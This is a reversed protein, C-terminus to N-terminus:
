GRKLSAAVFRDFCERVRCKHEKLKKGVGEGVELGLLEFTKDLYRSTVEAKAGSKPLPIAQLELVFDVRQFYDLAESMASSEESSIVGASAISAIRDTTSANLPFAAAIDALGIATLYEIDYRGGASRKTEFIEGGHPVLNELQQRTGLLSKLINKPVPDTIRDLIMKFFTDALSQEGGWCDCKAFAVREWPSLRDAFYRTYNSLDQVLPANAGEGRLRFDIKLLNSESFFQNIKQVRRTLPDLDRGDSVVLVDVDSNLRPEGVGFSGLALLAVGRTNEVLKEFVTSLVLRVADTISRSLTQPFTNGATDTRWAGLVQQDLFRAIEDELRRRNPPVPSDAYRDLSELTLEAPTIGVRTPDELLTYLVSLNKCIKGTLVTSAGALDRILDFAPPTSSLLSYFANENRSAAAIKAFNLLTLNPNGTQSCVRLLQPLITQFSARTSRDVLKPFSGYALSQLTSFAQSVDSFGFEGLTEAALEEDDPVLTLYASDPMGKGAFFDDSLVRIRSLHAALTSVFLEYTFSGLPGMSVRKALLEIDQESEPISHTKIQHMMQLRHEVLRFFNYADTLTRYEINDILGHQAALEIGRLTNPVRLGPTGHGHLLQLTQVVFEIDRIGGEMLKINFARDRKSINDRIRTRMLAIDDVPSYSLSPNFFLGQVSELFAEGVSRDGAIVRAKLMAQFEWPRGRNEYYIRMGTLTNVLPGSDGDPRLRLDTRYLYGEPTSGALADTLRSGVKHYFGLADDDADRCIYVLDIDSSYNLECGGLKGMALVAFGGSRADPVTASESSVDWLETWLLELVVNVIADALDSLRRTTTQITDHGLLDRVGIRLLQRRQFRRVANLKSEVSDFIDVDSQLSDELDSRNDDRELTQKEILWYLYGPNRIIIDTMYQSSGFLTALIERLPKGASLTGLFTDSAGVTDMYRLFNVMAGTPHPSGLLESLVIAVHKKSEPNTVLQKAIRVVCDELKADPVIGASELGATVDPLGPQLAIDEILNAIIDIIKDDRPTM